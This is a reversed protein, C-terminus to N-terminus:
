KKPGILEVLNGDPDRVITLLLKGPAIDDPIPAPTAGVTKIGRERLRALAADADSVYITLYRFGFQSHIYRNDGPKGPQKAGKVQMLKLKTASEGDGLTLVHIDLPAGDTLGVEGAMKASVQFSGAQQMGIAETYFALSKDLDSVVVGLDITTRSFPAAARATEKGVAPGQSCVALLGVALAACVTLFLPWRLTRIM